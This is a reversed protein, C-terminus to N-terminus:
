DTFQEFFIKQEHKTTKRLSIVRIQNNRETHAIVVVTSRLLGLTIFREEGYDDRDDEFTFTAGQFVEEVDAFDLGHNVINTRRKNEDWGFEM